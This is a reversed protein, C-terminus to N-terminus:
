PTGAPRAATGALTEQGSADPLDEARWGGGLAKILGVSAAIQRGRLQIATRQNTLSLAQSTIVSLYTATGGRYQALSVREAAQAATVAQDQQLVEQDLVTLAALNDEVDQLALLVTQKYNAVAADYAAVAQDSRASRLGGDFVTQALAAGLSWVRGPAGFWNALSGSSAGLAASLILQPFYASRAVGINANAAAAQREASAIDPRRELLVSPLGAPIVLAKMAFPETPVGFGSPPRGILVAIAHEIQKRQLTLDTAQAQASTLTVTALSVDAETVIGARFQSQTLRLSEQYAAITRAYLAIQVDTIRLLVYDQVVEAQIALRAAALQAASAQANAGAAEVTRRVQGWLDPEWSADLAATYLPGVHVVGQTNTRQRSAGISAGVTPFYGARAQQVLARAQRYQAEAQQLTQNAANAEDVLADLHSDEFLKWWDLGAEAARPEAVKWQAPDMAAESYAAPMATAPRQYDPGVACGGLGALLIAVGAARWAARRPSADIPRPCFM